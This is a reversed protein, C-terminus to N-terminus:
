QAGTEAGPANDAWLAVFRRAEDIVRKKDKIKLSLCPKAGAEVRLRGTYEPLAYLRSVKEM